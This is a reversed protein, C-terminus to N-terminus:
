QVVAKIGKKLNITRYKKTDDPEELRVRIYNETEHFDKLPQYGKRKLYEIIQKCNWQYKNFLLSQIGLGLKLKAKFTNKILWSYILENLSLNDLNNIQNILQRDADRRHEKDKFLTYNLDHLMALSDIRNTGIQGKKMRSINRTNPGAYNMKKMSPIDILHMEPGKMQLEEKEAEPRVKVLHNALTKVDSPSPKTKPKAVILQENDIHSTIDNLIDPAYDGGFKSLILQIM